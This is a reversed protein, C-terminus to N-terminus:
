KDNTRTVLRKWAEWDRAGLDSEFTLLEHVAKQCVKDSPIILKCSSNVAIYQTKCAMELHYSYFFTEHTTKGCIVAGHNRLLMVYNDGLNDTLQEIRDFDLLLSNYDHYSIKGYFHLAWQSIPLLGCELASIATIHPTHLHFISNIDPRAKYIASHMVYGTRNYQYEEGEIIKGDMTVKLLNDKTVEEFRLGFPYIYFHNRDESRASLHTYTHDDMGLYAFIRYAYALNGKISETM